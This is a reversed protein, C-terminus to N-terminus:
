TNYMCSCTMMDDNLQFGSYCECNFSGITNTCVQECQRNNACEDIDTLISLM